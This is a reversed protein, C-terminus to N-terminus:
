CVTQVCGCSNFPIKFWSGFLVIQHLLAGKNIQKNSLIIALSAVHLIEIKLSTESASYAPKLRAQTFIKLVPKRAVVGMSFFSIDTTM